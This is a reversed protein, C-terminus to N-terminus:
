LRRRLMVKGCKRCFYQPPLTQMVAETVVVLAARDHAITALLRAVTETFWSAGEVGGVPDNEVEDRITALAADTLPTM